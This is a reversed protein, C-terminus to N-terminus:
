NKDEINNHRNIKVNIGTDFPLIKYTFIIDNLKELYYNEAKISWFESFLEELQDFDELKITQM